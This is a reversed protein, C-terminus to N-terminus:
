DCLLPLMLLLALVVGAAPGAAVVVAAVLATLLVAAPLGLGVPVGAAAAVAPLWVRPFNLPWRRDM